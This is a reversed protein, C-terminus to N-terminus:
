SCLVTGFFTCSLDGNYAYSYNSTDKAVFVTNTAHLSSMALDSTQAGSHTAIYEVGQWDSTSDGIQCWFRM